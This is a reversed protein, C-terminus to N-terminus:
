LPTLLRRGSVSNKNPLLEARTRGDAGTMRGPTRDLNRRYRHYASGSQVVRVAALVLECVAAALTIVSASLVDSARTTSGIIGAILGLVAIVWGVLTDASSAVYLV